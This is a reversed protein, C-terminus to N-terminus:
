SELRALPITIKVTLGDRQWDHDLSGKFQRIVTTDILASGFGRDQPSTEIPPGGHECWTLVLNESDQWWTVDVGGHDSGLVGYKAANTAMEHFVLALGNVAQEGCFITPGGIQFKGNGDEGVIEHPEVILKLLDELESAASHVDSFSRRVLSHASALAHLRGSLMQTMDDKSSTSRASIRIMGDVIAFVNKLRHSMEKTLTEQRELAEHLQVETRVMKLALGIFTALEEMTRAHSRNFHGIRDGVIWLTGLPESRGVYLPVLLVEPLSLGGPIWDYVREPHSTLTPARRDLTVGCPSFDRPTTAGEFPSLLGRLHHWRFVPSPGDAEILSLGASIGGTLEMALEVLKPLMETPADHMRAALELLATKEGAHDVDSSPRDLWQPTEYVASVDPKRATVNSM